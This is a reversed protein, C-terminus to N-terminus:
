FNKDHNGEYIAVLIRCHTFRTKRKRSPLHPEDASLTREYPNTRYLYQPGIPHGCGPLKNIIKNTNQTNCKNQFGLLVENMNKLMACFLITVEKKKKRNKPFLADLSTLSQHPRSGRTNSIQYNMNRTLSMFSQWM